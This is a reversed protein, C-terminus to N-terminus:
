VERIKILINDIGLVVFFMHIFIFPVLIYELHNFFLCFHFILATITGDWRIYRSFKGLFKKSTKQLIKLGKAKSLELSIKSFYTNSFFICVWFIYLYLFYISETRLTYELIISGFILIYSIRDVWADFYKGFDTQKQLYLALQGDSCDCINGLHFFIMGYFFNGHLFFYSATINSLLSIFTIFNPSSNLLVFFGTFFTALPRYFIINGIGDDKISRFYVDRLIQISLKM